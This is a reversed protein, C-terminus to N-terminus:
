RASIKNKEIWAQLDTTDFLRRRGLKVFPIKRQSTWANLTYRSVGLIEAAKPTDILNNLQNM